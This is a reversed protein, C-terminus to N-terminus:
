ASAAKPARGKKRGGNRAVPLGVSATFRASSTGAASVASASCATVRTQVPDCRAPAIAPAVKRVVRQVSQLKPGVAGCYTASRQNGNTM